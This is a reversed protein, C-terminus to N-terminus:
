RAAFDATVVVAGRYGLFTGRMLGIGIRSYVPSLLNERHGPSALWEQVISADQAYPGSGWALNEGIMAGHVHFALMRGGFDGHAFYGHRMMDATHSRAARGLVPDPHLPGLHYTARAQNIVGLLTQAVSPIKSGALASPIFVFFLAAFLAFLHKKKWLL